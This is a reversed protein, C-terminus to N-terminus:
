IWGFAERCLTQELLMEGFRKILPRRREPPMNPLREYLMSGQRFLSHTRHKVTNAKLMRDMGLDEGAAGLMTLLAVTLASILLMRDRREPTGIRMTSLGMGFHIDKADRFNEEITFRKAYLKVIAAGTLDDRSAALCWADKMGSAKVCVVAPVAFRAGTVCADHLMKPRGNTPVWESAPRSEGDADEVEISERFRIVFDFTLTSLLEYLKQDGFGRDALVTVQVEKPLVERLRLLLRDEYENRWGALESKFVTLWMLPTARGHRTIMNLAITSQNDKDFDTWDLAVVIESRSAVVYPVWAAFLRWVDVGANSLLRDVQKITHKDNRGNAIALGQGVATVGLKGAQVAGIAAGAVSVVRAAHLEEAFM